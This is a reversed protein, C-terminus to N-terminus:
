KDKQGKKPNVAQDHFASTFSRKLSEKLIESYDGGNDQKIAWAKTTANVATGLAYTALQTAITSGAKELTERVWTKGKNTTKENKPSLLQAYENELKIRNIRERLEADTMKQASTNNLETEKDSRSNKQRKFQIARKAVALGAGAVGAAVAGYRIKGEPTLSGDKNQWRREGWKQGKIGHHTLENDM